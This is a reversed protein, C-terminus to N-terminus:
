SRMRKLLEATIRPDVPISTSAEVGPAKQMAAVVHTTLTHQCKACFIIAVILDQEDSFPLCYTRQGIRDLRHLSTSDNPCRPQLEVLEPGKQNEM